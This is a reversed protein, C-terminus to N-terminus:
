FYLICFINRVARHAHYNQCLTLWSQEFLISISTSCNTRSLFQKMLTVIMLADSSKFWSEGLLFVTIRAYCPWLEEKHSSFSYYPSPKWFKMHCQWVPAKKWDNAWFIKESDLLDVKEKFIRWQLLQSSFVPYLVSPSSILFFWVSIKASLFNGWFVNRVIATQLPKYHPNDQQM